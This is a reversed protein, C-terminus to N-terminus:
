NVGTAFVLGVWADYDGPINWTITSAGGALPILTGVNYTKTDSLSGMEISRETVSPDYGNLTSYADITTTTTTTLTVTKALTGVNQQGDAVLHSFRANGTTRAPWAYSFTASGGAVANYGNYIQITSSTVSPDYYVLVLHVSEAMPVAYYRLFPSTGNIIKSSMGGIELGYSIGYRGEAWTLQDNVLARYTYGTTSPPWNTSPGTGILTGTVLIGNLTLRADNSNPTALDFITWYLWAATLSCSRPVTLSITGRGTNRVGIGATAYNYKGTYTRFLPLSLAALSKFAPSATGPMVSNQVQLVPAALSVVLVSCIILAAVISFGLFRKRMVFEGGREGKEQVGFTRNDRLGLLYKPNICSDELGRRRIFPEYSAFCLREVSKLRENTLGFPRWAFADVL